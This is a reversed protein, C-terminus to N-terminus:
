KKVRLNTSKSKQAVYNKDGKYSVLVKWTGKKLKPITISGKGGSLTVSVNKITRGKELTVIAKGGAKALGVNTAVTISARGKRKSTPAKNAKFTPAKAKGKRVALGATGSSAAVEASGSYSAALTYAGAALAKDLTFTVTGDSVAVTQAAGGGSLQVSGSVPRGLANAVAVTVTGARGYTRPAATISTTSPALEVEVFATQASTSIVAEEGVKSAASSFTIRQGAFPASVPLSTGTAGIIPVGDAFWQNGVTTPGGSFVAPTGTLTRGVKSIGSITPKRVELVKTVLAIAHEDGMAVAAIDAGELENPIEQLQWMGLAAGLDIGSGWVTVAGDEGVAANNNSFASIAEVKEGNLSDPIGNLVDPTDAFLGWSVLSGDALLALGGSSRAEIARVNGPVALEEPLTTEGQNNSGWAVVTGDSKLAYYHNDGAALSAVGTLGVPVATEGFRDDGWAVVAGDAKVAAASGRAVAVSRVGTLGAPVDTADPLESRSGWVVVEGTSTVAAVSFGGVAIDIVTEDALSAPAEEMSVDPAYGRGMVVVKGTATLAVSFGGGCIVKSVATRRLDPPVIYAAGPAIGIGWGVLRGAESLAVPPAARAQASAMLSATTMLGILAVVATRQALMRVM